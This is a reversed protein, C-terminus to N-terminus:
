YWCFNGPCVGVTFGDLEKGSASYRYVKGKQVYDIADGAFIDGNHPSVTLSYFQRDEQRVLPESPMRDATVDMKWVGDRLWYLAKGDPGAVLKRASGYKGYEYKGEMKLTLDVTFTELNVRSLAPEEKGCFYENLGGDTLVWMSGEADLAMSCPQEGVDLRGVVKDSNLDIKVIERGYSWLNVYLCDGVQIMGEPEGGVDILHQVSYGTKEDQVYSIQYTQPNVVYISNGYMATVYAKTDSVFHIYRPSVIGTIMGKVKMDSLGVAYIVSSNNMVIWARDGYVSMSQAVNGMRFGNANEFIENTCKGSAADYCSITGDGNNYQGESVVFLSQGRVPAFGPNDDGPIEQKMCSVLCLSLAPLLFCFRRM